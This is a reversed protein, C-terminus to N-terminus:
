FTRGLGCAHSKERIEPYKEIAYDFSSSSMWYFHSVDKLDESIEKRILQYTPIIKKDDQLAIDHTLKYWKLDEFLNEPPSELEGLSDSSGNIWLGKKSLTFWTKIGSTWIINSEDIVTVDNLANGRTVYIGSNSIEKLIISSEDIVKRDFLSFDEKNEPYYSEINKLSKDTYEEDAIFSNEKLNKGQETEGRLSLSKGM